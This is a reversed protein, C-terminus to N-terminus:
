EATINRAKIIRAWTATEVRILAVFEAPKQTAEALGQAALQERVAPQSLIAAADAALQEIM